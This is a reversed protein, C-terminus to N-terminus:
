DEAVLLNCNQMIQAAFDSDSQLVAQHAAAGVLLGSESAASKLSTFPSVSVSSALSALSVSSGTNTGGCGTLLGSSMAVGLAASGALFSRRTMKQAPVSYQGAVSLDKQDPM